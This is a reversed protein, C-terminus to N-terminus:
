PQSPFPSRWMAVASTRIFIPHPAAQVFHYYLHNIILEFDCKKRKSYFLLKFFLIHYFCLSAKTKFVWKFLWLLAMWANFLPKNLFLTWHFKSNYLIFIPCWMLVIEIGIMIRSFNMDSFYHSYTKRVTFFSHILKYLHM